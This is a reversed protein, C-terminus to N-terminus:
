AAHRDSREVAHYYADLWDVPRRRRVRIVREGALGALEIIGRAEIRLTQEFLSESTLAFARGPGGAERAAAELRIDTSASGEAADAFVTAIAYAFIEAPVAKPEQNLQYYGSSRFHSMLGLEIFPCDSADEPDESKPPIVQAYSALLCAIDRELTRPSPMRRKSLQLHRRLSEVCVAREFRNLNFSNFFWAWSGAYQPANVLNVHLTWWTGPEVFYIDRDYILQGIETAHLPLSKNSSGGEKEALGTAQLWHRISKAMNRGVGLYDSAHEDVLREPSEVLLKLGKHLWGERIAFTEHGSFKM